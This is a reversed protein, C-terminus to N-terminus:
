GEKFSELGKAIVEAITVQIQCGNKYHECHSVITTTDCIGCKKMVPEKEIVSGTGSCPTCPRSEEAVTNEISIGVVTCVTFISCVDCLGNCETGSGGCDGCTREVMRFALAAPNIFHGLKEVCEQKAKAITEECLKKVDDSFNNFEEITKEELRQVLEEVEEPSRYGDLKLMKIIFWPTNHANFEEVYGTGSLIVSVGQEILEKIKKEAIKDRKDKM